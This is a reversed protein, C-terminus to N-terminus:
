SREVVDHHLTERSWAVAVITVVTFSPNRGIRIAGLFQARREQLVEDRFLGAM